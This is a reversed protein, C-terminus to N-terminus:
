DDEPTSGHEVTETISCNIQQATIYSSELMDTPYFFDLIRYPKICTTHSDWKEIYQEYCIETEGMCFTNRM